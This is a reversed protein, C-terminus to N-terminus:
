YTSLIQCISGTANVFFSDWTQMDARTETSFSSDKKITIVDTQGNPLITIDATGINSFVLQRYGSAVEYTANTVVKTFLTGEM